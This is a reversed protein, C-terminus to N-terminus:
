KFPMRCVHEELLLLTPRAQYRYPHPHVSAGSGEGLRLSCRLSTLKKKKVPQATTNDRNRSYYVSRYYHCKYQRVLQFADLRVQVIELDVSM